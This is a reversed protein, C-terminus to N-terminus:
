EMHAQLNRHCLAVKKAELASFGKTSLRQASSLEQPKLPTGELMVNSFNLYLLVAIVHAVDQSHSPCDCRREKVMILIPSFYQHIVHKSRDKARAM